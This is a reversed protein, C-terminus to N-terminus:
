STFANRIARVSYRVIKWLLTRRVLLSMVNAIVYCQCLLPEMVGVCVYRHISNRVLTYKDWIQGRERKYKTLDLKKLIPVTLRIVNRKQEESLNQFHVTTLFAMVHGFTEPHTKEWVTFLDEYSLKDLVSRYVNEYDYYAKNVFYSLTTEDISINNKHLEDVLVDM